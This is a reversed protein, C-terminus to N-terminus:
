SHDGLFKPFAEKVICILDSQHFLSYNKHSTDVVNCQPHFAQFFVLNNNAIGPMISPSYQWHCLNNM